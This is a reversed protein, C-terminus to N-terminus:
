SAGGPSSKPAYAVCWGQPSIEGEVIKCTGMASATSGEVYQSCGNCQQGNKPQDQYQMAAKSAKGAQAQRGLILSGAAVGAVAAMGRLVGRRTVGKSAENHM